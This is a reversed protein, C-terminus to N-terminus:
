RLPYHCCSFCGTAGHRQAPPLIKHLVCDSSDDGSSGLIRLACRSVRLTHLTLVAAFRMCSRAVHAISAVSQWQLVSTLCRLKSLYAWVRCPMSALSHFQTGAATQHATCWTLLPLQCQKSSKSRQLIEHLIAQRSTSRTSGRPM